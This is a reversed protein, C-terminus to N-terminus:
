PRYEKQLLVYTYISLSQWDDQYNEPMSCLAGFTFHSNQPVDEIIGTVFTPTNDLYVTKNFADLPNAFLKAALSRTLVISGPKGLATADGAMFKHSFIKFFSADTFFIADQKLKKDGYRVIGGGEADIRAVDEVEPFDNKLVQALRGSTGAVDFKEEGWQGHSALRYIRHSKANYRDYSLEDTVFLAILWVTTLSLALGAINIFSFLRQRMINRCATKFFNKFM